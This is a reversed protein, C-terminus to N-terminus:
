SGIAIGEGDALGSQADTFSRQPAVNGAALRAFVEVSAPSAFEAAKVLVFIQGSIQSDAIGTIVNGNLGTASGAITRVPRADGSANGAFVEIRTGSASSVAAYIRGTFPSYTISLTDCPSGPCTGLGTDVGAITRVPTSSGSRGGQFVEIANGSTRTVAALVDNASDVTLTSPWHNFVDQDTPFQRVPTVTYLNGPKGAALPAAVSIMPGSDGGIVYAYGNADVAIAENDPGDVRFIRSPKPAHPGFVFTTADFLFSQVFLASSPGFAVGWPDWTTNANNPNPVSRVPSVAGSASSPYATVPGSDASAVYVLESSAASASGAALGPAAAAVSAALL